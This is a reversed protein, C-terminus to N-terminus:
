TPISKGSIGVERLGVVKMIPNRKKLMFGEVGRDRSEMRREEFESWTKANILPSIGMPLNQPLSEM